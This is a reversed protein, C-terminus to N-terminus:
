SFYECDMKKNYYTVIPIMAHTSVVVIVVDMVVVAGAPVDEEVLRGEVVLVGDDEVVADVVSVDYGVVVVGWDVVPTAGCVPVVDVVAEDNDVPTGDDALVGEDVLLDEGIAGGLEVLVVNVVPVDVGVVVKGSDVVPADADAAAGNGAPVDEDVLVGDDVVVVICGVVVV